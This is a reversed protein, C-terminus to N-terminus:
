LLNEVEAVSHHKGHEDLFGTKNAAAPLDPEAIRCDTDPRVAQDHPDRVVGIDLPGHLRRAAQRTSLM